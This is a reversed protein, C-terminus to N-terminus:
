PQVENEDGGASPEDFPRFVQVRRNYSDAVWVWGKPDIFM